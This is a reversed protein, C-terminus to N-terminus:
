ANKKTYEVIIIATANTRKNNAISRWVLHGTNDIMVFSNNADGGPIARAEKNFGIQWYGGQSIITEVYDAASILVFNATANADANVYLTFDQRFVPKGRFAKGTDIEGWNGESSGAVLKDANAISTQLTPSLSDVTIAQTPADRGPPGQIGQAGQIGQVGQAGAVGQVGQDGKDGKDGKPGQPGAMVWLTWNVPGDVPNKGITSQIMCIYSNGDSGVVVDNKSYSVAPNYKGRATIDAVANEGPPGQEGREGQIGQVGPPGQIGQEGPPGQIGQIGQEGKEGDGSSAPREELSKIRNEHDDAQPKSGFLLKGPAWLWSSDFPTQPAETSM